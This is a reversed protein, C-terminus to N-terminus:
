SKKEKEKKLNITLENGIFISFSLIIIFYCIGYPSLFYQFISYNYTLKSILNGDTDFNKRTQPRGFLDSRLTSSGTQEGSATYDM